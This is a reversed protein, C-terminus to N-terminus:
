AFFNSQVWQGLDDTYNLVLIFGTIHLILLALSISLTDILSGNLIYVFFLTFATGLAAVVGWAVREGDYAGLTFEHFCSIILLHTSMSFISGTWTFLFTGIVLIGVGWGASFVSLIGKSFTLGQIDIMSIGPHANGFLAPLFSFGALLIVVGALSAIWNVLTSLIAFLADVKNM